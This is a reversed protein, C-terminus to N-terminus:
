QKTGVLLGDLVTKFASYVRAGRLLKVAKVKSGDPETVSVLFTPTSRVGLKRGEDLDKRIAAAAQESELCRQFEAADLSLAQAHSPLDGPNLANQHAFLWEHM